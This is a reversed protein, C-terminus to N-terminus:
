SLSPSSNNLWCPGADGGDLSLLFSFFHAEESMHEAIAPGIMARRSGDHMSRVIPSANWGNKRLSDIFADTDERTHTLFGGETRFKEIWGPSM